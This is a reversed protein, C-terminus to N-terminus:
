LRLLVIEMLRSRPVKLFLSMVYSNYQSGWNEQTYVFPGIPLTSM